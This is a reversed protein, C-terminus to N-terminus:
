PDYCHKARNFNCMAPRERRLQLASYHGASPSFRAREARPSSRPSCSPTGWGGLVPSHCTERVYFCGRAPFARTQIVALLQCDWRLAPRVARPSDRTPGPEAAAM